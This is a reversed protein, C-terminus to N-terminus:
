RRPDDGRAQLLDGPRQCQVCNKKTLEDGLRTVPIYPQVVAAPCRTDPATDPATETTYFRSAVRRHRRPRPVRNRFSPPHRSGNKASPVAIAPTQGNQCRMLDLSGLFGLVLHAPCRIVTIPHARPVSRQLAGASWHHPRYPLGIRCCKPRKEQKKRWNWAPGFVKAINVINREYITAKMFWLRM